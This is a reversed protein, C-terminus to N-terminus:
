VMGVLKYKIINRISCQAVKKTARRYANSVFGAHVLKSSKTKLPLNEYRIFKNDQSTEFTDQSAKIDKFEGVEWLKKKIFETRLYELM